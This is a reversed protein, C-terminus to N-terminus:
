FKVVAALTFTDQDLTTTGHGGLFFPKNAHDHRYELRTLVQNKFLSYELTLTAERLVTYGPLGLRLGAGGAGAVDEFQDYRAAVALKPTLQYRAYGAIDTWYGSYHTMGVNGAGQGYDVEAALKLDKTVQYTPQVEFLNTDIGGKHIPALAPGYAGTGELGGMYTLNTTLSANPAWSLQVFGSKADNDDAIDNWGNVLGGQLTLTKSLPTTARLGAHYFPIAYQFGFSRSYEDNKASVILEYGFSTVFIGADFTVPHKMINLTKTIYLQQITQWAATGGPETAHVLRATDGTTLTATISFPIGKGENRTINLELLSLSLERDNIDFSRGVNDIGIKEGDTTTLVAAPYPGRANILYYLDLYGSIDVEGPKPGSNGDARASKPAMTLVVLGLLGCVGLRYALAKAYGLRQPAAAQATTPSFLRGFHINM